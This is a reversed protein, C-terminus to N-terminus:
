SQKVRKCDDENDASVSRPRKEGVKASRFPIAVSDRIWPHLLCQQVTPRDLPEPSLLKAVFDKGESSIHKWHKTPFSWKVGSGLKELAEDSFPPRGSLVIYTIIGLSWIDAGLGYRGVGFATDKREL